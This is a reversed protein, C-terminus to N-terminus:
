VTIKFHQVNITQITLAQPMLVFRQRVLDMQFLDMVSGMQALICNASQQRVPTITAPSEPFWVDKDM